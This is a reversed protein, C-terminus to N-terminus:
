CWGHRGMSPPSVHRISWATSGVREIDKPHEGTHECDQLLYKMSQSSQGLLLALEDPVFRRECGPQMRALEEVLQWLM